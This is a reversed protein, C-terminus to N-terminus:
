VIWWFKKGQFLCIGVKAICYIVWMVGEVQTVRSDLSKLSRAMYILPSRCYSSMLQVLAMLHAFDSMRTQCVPCLLGWSFWHGILIWKYLSYGSSNMRSNSDRIVEEMPLLLCLYGFDIIIVGRWWQPWPTGMIRWKQFNRWYYHSFSTSWFSHQSSIRESFCFFWGM